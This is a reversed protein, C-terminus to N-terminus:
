RESYELDSLLRRAAAHSAQPIDEHSGSECNAQSDIVFGQIAPPLSDPLFFILGGSIRNYPTVWPHTNLQIYRWSLISSDCPLYKYSREPGTPTNDGGEGALNALGPTGYASAEPVLGIVHDCIPNM